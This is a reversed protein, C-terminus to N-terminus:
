DEGGGGADGGGMDGGGDIDGGGGTDGGGYNELDADTNENNLTRNYADTDDNNFANQLRVDRDWTDEETSQGDNTPSPNPDPEWVNIGTEIQWATGSVGPRHLAALETYDAQKKDLVEFPSLIAGTAGSVIRPYPEGTQIEWVLRMPKMGVAAFSLTAQTANGNFGFIKENTFAQTLDIAQPKIAITPMPNPMAPAAVILNGTPATSIISISSSVSPSYFLFNFAQPHALINVTGDQSPSAVRVWVLVADAHWGAALARAAQIADAPKVSALNTGDPLAVSGAVATVSTGIIPPLPLNDRQWLCSQGVANTCLVSNNDIFNYTGTNFPAPTNDSTWTGGAAAFSGSGAPAAGQPLIVYNKYSKTDHISVVTVPINNYMFTAIWNGSFRSNDDVTQPSAAFAASSFAMAVLSVLFKPKSM